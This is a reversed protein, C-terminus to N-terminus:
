RLEFGAPWIDVVYKANTPQDTWQLVVLMPVRLSDHFLGTGPSGFGQASSVLESGSRERIGIQDEGLNALSDFSVYVISGTAKTDLWKICDEDDPKFLSLDYDKDDELRNDLHM